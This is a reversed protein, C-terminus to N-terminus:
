RRASIESFEPRGRRRNAALLALAMKGVRDFVKPDRQTKALMV